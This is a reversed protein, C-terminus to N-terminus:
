GNAQSNFPALWNNSRGKARLALMTCCLSSSIGAGGRLSCSGSCPLLRSCGIEPMWARSLMVTLSIRTGRLSTSPIM